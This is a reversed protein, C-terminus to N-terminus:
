GPEKRMKEGFLSSKWYRKDRKLTLMIPPERVQAVLWLLAIALAIGGIVLVGTPGIWLAFRYLLEKLAAHRGHSNPAPLAGRASDRLAWTLMALVAATVLPALAARLPTFETRAYRFIPEMQSRMAALVEDRRQPSSFEFDHFEPKGTLALKCTIKLESTRENSVVGVIKEFPFRKGSRSLLTEAPAGKQLESELAALEDPARTAVVVAEDTVMVVNNRSSERDIVIPPLAEGEVVPDAGREAITVGEELACEECLHREHKEGSPM